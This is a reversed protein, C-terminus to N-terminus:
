PPCLTGSEPVVGDVLMADVVQRVCATRPYAGTGAGQWGLFRATALSDATRRAGDLAGRPDAATGIVLIPPAGEANGAAPAERGTPWPACALLRMAFTSGFIPYATNWREAIDGIEGPALRRRTDNCSTALMNDFLGRPGTLPELATLLPLPDGAGAAALAAALGPWRRPEGLGALLATVTAGSTLRRGDAALLPQRELQELLAAVTARPDAGLPCGPTATCAVGFASLAAEAAGARADTLDPEDLQPHPPGDLVLRGVSRPTTRAWTALAAAGDGVGVASMREVGLAARLLEVDAASAASRYSGIGGDLILNCEQVVARSQELLLALRTDSVTSLNADVLAARAEDPACDLMDLGSGRRDLGVLTYSELLAPDVRGGLDAAHRTSPERTSDGLVLLPPRDAPAGAKSVRVVGLTVAGLGPQDPDAPVTLEGCDVQLNRDAPVPEVLTVLTDETCEFFPISAQQAEPAPLAPPPTPSPPTPPAAPLNEGLVAVPPRQSPGVTCGALLATLCLFATAWPLAGTVAHRPPRAM